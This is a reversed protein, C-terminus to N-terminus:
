HKYLCVFGNRQPGHFPCVLFSRRLLGPVLCCIDLNWLYASFRRETMILLVVRTILCSCYVLWFGKLWNRGACIYIGGMPPRRSFGKGSSSSFCEMLVWPPLSLRQLMNACALDWCSHLSIGTSRSANDPMVAFSSVIRSFSLLKRLNVLFRSSGSPPLGWDKLEFGFKIM